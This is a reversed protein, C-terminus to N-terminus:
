DNQWIAADRLVSEIIHIFNQSPVHPRQESSQSLCLSMVMLGPVWSFILFSPLQRPFSVESGAQDLDTSIPVPESFAVVKWPMSVFFGKAPEAPAGPVLHKPSPLSHSTYLIAGLTCISVRLM